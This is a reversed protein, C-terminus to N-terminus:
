NLRSTATFDVTWQWQGDDHQRTSDAVHRLRAVRGAPPMALSAGDFRERILGAISKADAYRDHWLDFRVSMERLAPGENTPLTSRVTRILLTARPAAAGGRGTTLLAVPLLADLEVAAAWHEHIAQELNM